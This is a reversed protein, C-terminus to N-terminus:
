RVAGSHEGGGDRSRDVSGLEIAVLIVYTLVLLCAMSGCVWSLAQLVLLLMEYIAPLPELM